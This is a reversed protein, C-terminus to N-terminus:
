GKGILRNWRRRKKNKKKKYKYRINFYGDSKVEM